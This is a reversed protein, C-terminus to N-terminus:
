ATPTGRLLAVTEEAAQRVGGREDLFGGVLGVVPVKALARFPLSGRPRRDFLTQLALLKRALQWVTAAGRRVPGGAERAAVARIEDDETLQEAGVRAAGAQVAPSLDRDLLVRGLLRVWEQEDDVGHERAVACVVLGQAAAGFVDQVPLRDALVGFFRPTAAVFAVLTGVQGVWWEVREEVRSASWETSGPHVRGRVTDVVRDGARALLSPVRGARGPTRRDGGSPPILVDDTGLWREPDAVAQRALRAYAGLVRAVEDDSIAEAPTDSM